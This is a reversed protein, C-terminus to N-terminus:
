TYTCICVIQLDQAKKGGLDAHSFSTKPTNKSFSFYLQNIIHPLSLAPLVLDGPHTVCQKLSLEEPGGLTSINHLAVGRWLDPLRPKTVPSERRLRRLWWTGSWPSPPGQFYYFHWKIKHFSSNSGSSQHREFLITSKFLITSLIPLPFTKLYKFITNCFWKKPFFSAKPIVKILTGERKM